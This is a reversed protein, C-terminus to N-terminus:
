LSKRAGFRTDGSIMLHTVYCDIDIHQVRFAIGCHLNRMTNKEETAKTTISFHQKSHECDLSLKFINKM